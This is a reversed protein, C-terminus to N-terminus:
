CRFQGNRRQIQADGPFGSQVPEVANELRWGCWRCHLDDTFSSSKRVCGDREKRAILDETFLRRPDIHRKLYKDAFHQM